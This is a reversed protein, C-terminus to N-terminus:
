RERATGMFSTRAGAASRDSRGCDGEQVSRRCRACLDDPVDAIRGVDESEQQGVAENEESLMLSRIVSAFRPMPSRATPCTSSCAKEAGFARRYFDIAAVCDRLAMYPTVTHYGTRSASKRQNGHM